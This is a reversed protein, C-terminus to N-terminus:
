DPHSLVIGSTQTHKDIYITIFFPSSFPGIPLSSLSAQTHLRPPTPPPLFRLPLPREGCLGAKAAKSVHIKGGKGM